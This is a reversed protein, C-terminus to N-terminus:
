ASESGEPALLRRIKERVEAGAEEPYIVFLAQGLTEMLGNIRDSDVTEGSCITRVQTVAEHLSSRAEEGVLSVCDRALGQLMAEDLAEPDARRKLFHFWYEELSRPHGRSVMDALRVHLEELDVDGGKYLLCWSLM